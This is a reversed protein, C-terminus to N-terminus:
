PLKSRLGRTLHHHHRHLMEAKITLHHDVPGFFEETVCATVPRDIFQDPHPVCEDIILAPRRGSEIRFRRRYNRVLFRLGLGLRGFRNIKVLQDVRRVVGILYKFM